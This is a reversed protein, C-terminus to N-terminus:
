KVKAASQPVYKGWPDNYFVEQFFGTVQNRFAEQAKTLAKVDAEAQQVEVTVETVKTKLSPLDAETITAQLTKVDKEARDVRGKTDTIQDQLIKTEKFIVETKLKEIRDGLSSLQAILEQQSIATLQTQSGEKGAGAPSPLGTKIRVAAVDGRLITLEEQIKTDTDSLTKLTEGIRTVNAELKALLDTMLRDKADGDDRVKQVEQQLAGLTEHLARASNRQLFVTVIIGAALLVAIAAFVITAKRSGTAPAAAAKTEGAM